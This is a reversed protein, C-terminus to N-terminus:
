VRSLPLPHQGGERIVGKAAGVFERFLPHPREPRSRFAPHFQVGVMFPHDVLESIEVLTGDPSLGSPMLGVEILPERFRNSFEYRHRHRETVVDGYISHALTGKAVDSSQAGLRMTGGKDTLERQEELLSIVPHATDPAFETSNADHLGCVNRAFEVSAVQMGLCIGFFPIRRDRAWQTTQVKGEM